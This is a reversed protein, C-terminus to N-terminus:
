QTAGHKLVQVDLGPIDDFDKRNYTIVQLNHQIALAALWLDQGRHLPSGRGSKILDAALKGYLFGTQADISLVTKYSLRLVTQNRRQRIFEDAAVYASFQLEACSVPTVYMPLGATLTALDAASLRGREVEIWIGTDILYGARSV